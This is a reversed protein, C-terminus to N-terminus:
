RVFADGVRERDVGRDPRAAGRAAPTEDRVFKLNNM